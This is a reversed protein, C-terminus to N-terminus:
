QQTRTTSSATGSKFRLVNLEGAQSAGSSEFFNGSSNRDIIKRWFAFAPKNAAFQEVKWRRPFQDFLERAMREGVGQGRFKRLVFFDTISYDVDPEVNDGLILAFGAPEVGARFIFAFKRPETFYPELSDCGDFQGASNCGWGMHESLDHMYCPWLHKVLLLDIPTARHLTVEM